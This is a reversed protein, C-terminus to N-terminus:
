LTSEKISKGEEVAALIALAVRQAEDYGLALYEGEHTDINITKRSRNHLVVGDNDPDGDVEISHNTFWSSYTERTKSPEPLEYTRSITM